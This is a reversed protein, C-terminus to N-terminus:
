WGATDELSSPDLRGVGNFTHRNDLGSDELLGQCDVLQPLMPLNPFERSAVDAVLIARPLRDGHGGLNGLRRLRFLSAEGRRGEFLGRSAVITM